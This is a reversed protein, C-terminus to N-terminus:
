EIVPFAPIPSGPPQPPGTKDARRACDGAAAAAARHRARLPHGAAPPRRPLRAAPRRSARAAAPQYRRSSRWRASSARRIAGHRSRRRRRPAWTQRRPTETPRCGAAVWVILSPAIRALVCGWERVVAAVNREPLVREMAAPVGVLAVARAPRRRGNRRRAASGPAIRALYGTPAPVTGLTRRAWPWAGSAATPLVRLHEIVGFYLGPAAHPAAGPCLRARRAMLQRRPGALQRSGGASLRRPM